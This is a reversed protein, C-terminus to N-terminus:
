QATTHEDPLRSPDLVIAPVQSSGLIGNSEAVENAVAAENALASGSHSESRGLVHTLATMERAIDDDSMLAIIQQPQPAAENYIQAHCRVVNDANTNSKTVTSCHESDTYECDSITFNVGTLRGPLNVVSSSWHEWSLM